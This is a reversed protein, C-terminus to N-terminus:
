SRGTKRRYRASMQNVWRERRELKLPDDTLTLQRNWCMKMLPVLEPFEEALRAEFQKALETYYVRNEATLSPHTLTLTCVEFIMFMDWYRMVVPVQQDDHYINAVANLSQHEDM